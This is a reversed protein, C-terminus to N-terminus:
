SRFQMIKLNWKQGNKKWFKSVSIFCVVAMVIAVIVMTLIFSKQEQTNEKKYKKYTRSSTAAELQAHTVKAARQQGRASRGQLLWAAEPVLDPQAIAHADHQAADGALDKQRQM